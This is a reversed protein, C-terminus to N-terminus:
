HVTVINQLHLLWRQLIIKGEALFQTALLLALSCLLIFPLLDAHVLWASALQALFLLVPLITTLL